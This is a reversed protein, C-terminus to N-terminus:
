SSSINYLRLRTLVWYSSTRTHKHTHTHAYICTHTHTHAHTYYTRSRAQSTHYLRPGIVLCHMLPTVHPPSREVHGVVSVVIKKKKWTSYIIIPVPYFTRPSNNISGAHGFARARMNFYSQADAM